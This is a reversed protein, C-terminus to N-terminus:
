GIKEILPNMYGENYAVLAAAALVVVTLLYVLFQYTTEM